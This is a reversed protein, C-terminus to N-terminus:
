RGKDEPPNMSGQSRETKSSGMLVRLPLVVWAFLGVPGGCEFNFRIHDRLPGVRPSTLLRVRAALGLGRMADDLNFPNTECLAVPHTYQLIMRNTRKFRFGLVIDARSHAYGRPPGGVKLFENKTILVVNGNFTDVPTWTELEHTPRSLTLPYLSSRSVFGGYTLEGERNVCKGVAVGVKDRAAAQIFDIFWNARPMVDDNLLLYYDAEEGDFISLDFSIRMGEAWFTKHSTRLERIRLNSWYRLNSIGTEGSNAVYVTFEVGKLGALAELLNLASEPRNHTTMLVTIRM